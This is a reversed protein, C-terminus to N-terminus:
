GRGSRRRVPRGEGSRMERGNGIDQLITLCGFKEGVRGTCLGAKALLTDVAWEFAPVLVQWKPLTGIRM